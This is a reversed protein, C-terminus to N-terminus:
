QKMPGAGHWMGVDGCAVLKARVCLCLGGVCQLHRGPMLKLIAEPVFDVAQNLCRTSGFFM